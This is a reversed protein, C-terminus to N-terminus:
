MGLRKSPDEISGDGRRTVIHFGLTSHVPVAIAGVDGEIRYQAALYAALDECDAKGIRVVEPATLWREWYTGDRKLAEREYRVGAEYLRPLRYAQIFYVNLGTLAALAPVLDDQGRWPVQITLLSPV